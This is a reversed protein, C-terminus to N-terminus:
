LIVLDWCLDILLLLLIFAAFLRNGKASESKDCSSETQKERAGSEIVGVSLVGVSM